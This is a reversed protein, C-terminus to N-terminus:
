SAEQLFDVTAAALPEPTDHVMAHTAGELTVLRGRPLLRAVEAAWAPSVIPDESGRVVLTPVEVYPLREEPRDRLVARLTAAARKAGASRYDRRMTRRYEGSQTRSERLFRALLRPLSRATPDTTPSSLVLRDVVDPERMALEAAVSCGYSNGLLSSGTLDRAGLWDRLSRALPAPRAPIGGDSRGFGPLDPAWVDFRSSLLEAIPVLYRSSVVMGHVLVVAPRDGTAWARAHLRAGEVETWASREDPAPAVPRPTTDTM